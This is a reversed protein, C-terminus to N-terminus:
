RPRSSIRREGNPVERCLVKSGTPLAKVSSPGGKANRPPTGVIEAGLRSFNIGIGKPELPGRIFSQAAPRGRDNSKVAERARRWARLLDEATQHELVADAHAIRPCLLSYCLLLNIACEEVRSNGILKRVL